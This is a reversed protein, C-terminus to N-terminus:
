WMGFMAWWTKIVASESYINLLTTGVTWWGQPRTPQLARMFRTCNYWIHSRLVIHVRRPFEAFYPRCRFSSIIWDVSINKNRLQKLRFIIRRNSMYSSFVLFQRNGDWSCEESEFFLTSRRCSVYIVWNLFYLIQSIINSLGDMALLRPSQHSSSPRTM